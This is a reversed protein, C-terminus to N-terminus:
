FPLQNDMDDLLIPPAVYNDNVINAVAGYFQQIYQPYNKQIEQYLKLLDELATTPISYNYNVTFPEIEFVVVPSITQDFLKSALLTELGSFVYKMDDSSLKKNVTFYKSWEDEGWYGESMFGCVATTASQIRERLQRIDPLPPPPVPEEKKKAKEPEKTLEEIYANKKIEIDKGTVTKFEACLKEAQEGFGKDDSLFLVKPEGNDKFHHLMTIWLVADKFGKDSPSKGGSKGTVEDSIFPPKKMFARELVDSFTAEDKLLPIIHTGVLREYSAQTSKRIQEARTDFSVSLKMSAIHKYEAQLSAFKDYKAREERCRQAIREEICLQPVYVVYRDSLKEQLTLLDKKYQVIFNTDFVLATKETMGSM